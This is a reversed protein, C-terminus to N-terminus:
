DGACHYDARGHQGGLEADAHCAVLIMYRTYPRFYSLIRQLLERDNYKRDYSETDLGDLIFGM